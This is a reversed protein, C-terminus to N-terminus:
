WNTERPTHQVTTPKGFNLRSEPNLKDRLSFLKIKIPLKTFEREKDLKRPESEGTYIIAHQYHSDPNPNKTTGKSGYTNIPSNIKAEHVAVTAM